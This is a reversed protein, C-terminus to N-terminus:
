PLVGVGRAKISNPPCDVGFSPTGFTLTTEQPGETFSRFTLHWGGPPFGPRATVNDLSFSPNSSGLTETSNASFEAPIFVSPSATNIVVNGFDIDPPLPTHFRGSTEVRLVLPQSPAVDADIGGNVDVSVLTTPSVDGVTVTATVTEGAALTSGPPSFTFTFPFPSSITSPHWTLDFSSTNTILVEASSHGCKAFFLLSPSLTFSGLEVGSGGAGATGGSGADGSSAGTGGSGGELIITGGSGSSAGARGGVDEGGAGSGGHGGHGGHGGDDMCGPPVWPLALSLMAPLVRYLM